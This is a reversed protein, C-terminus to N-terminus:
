LSNLCEMHSIETKVLAFWAPFICVKLSVVAPKGIIELRLPDGPQQQKDAPPPNPQHRQSHYGPRVAHGGARDQDAAGASLKTLSFRHVPGLPRAPCSLLLSDPGLLRAVGQENGILLEDRAM